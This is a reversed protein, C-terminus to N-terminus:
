ILPVIMLRRGDVWKYFTIIANSVSISDFSQNAQRQGNSKPAIHMEYMECKMCIIMEVIVQKLRQREFHKLVSKAEYNYNNHMISECLWIKLTLCKALGKNTCKKQKFRFKFGNEINSSCTGGRFTPRAARNM